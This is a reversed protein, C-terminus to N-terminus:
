KYKYNELDNDTKSLLLDLILDAENTDQRTLGVTAELQGGSNENRM